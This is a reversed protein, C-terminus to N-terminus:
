YYGGLLQTGLRGTSQLIAAPKTSGRQPISYRGFFDSPKNSMLPIHPLTGPPGESQRIGWGALSSEGEEDIGACLEIIAELDARM